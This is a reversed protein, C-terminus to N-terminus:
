KKRFEIHQQKVGRFHWSEHHKFDNKGPAFWMEEIRETLALFAWYMERRALPAGVCHHTGAGFGLHTGANRRNLDLEEPCGFHREDRNAAGMRINVASGAPIDVGHLTVDKAAIRGQGQAPSELRVVEEIFTRLHAEPDSKLRQWVQPHEILLKVGSALANATTEAGAAFLDGFMAAHLENENLTRGWGPIVTNVVDSFLTEDPEARLREIIKQFYHQAEIEKRISWLEEEETQMMGARWIWADVWDKIRWIDEERAGMLKCIVTLPLPVAFQKVWECHGDDIFTDLLNGVLEQLYPDLAKVKGPRFAIDWITRMQKHEPDDHQSLTPGPLWGESEYVSRVRQHREPDRMIRRQEYSRRSSFMEPDLFAARADDYRTIVFVGTAPDRYVPAEDRLAAYAEYPCEQVNPDMLSYEHVPQNAGLPEAM